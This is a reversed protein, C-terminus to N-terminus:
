YIHRKILGFDQCQNLTISRTKILDEVTIKDDFVDHIDYMCKNKYKEKM